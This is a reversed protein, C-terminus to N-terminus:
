PRRRSNAPSQCCDALGDLLGCRGSRVARRCADLWRRLMADVARLQAIQEGVRALRTSILEQVKRCPAPDGDRFRLLAAIDALTFGAAQASRVFRLRTLTQDDYLRYNGDSRSSPQLLRRREYYRVTSTPVDAAKALQGITYSGDMASDYCPTSSPNLRTRCLRRDGQEVQLSHLAACARQAAAYTVPLAGVRANRPVCWASFSSGHLRM